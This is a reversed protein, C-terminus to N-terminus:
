VYQLDVLLISLTRDPPKRRCGFVEIASMIRLAFLDGAESDFQATVDGVM